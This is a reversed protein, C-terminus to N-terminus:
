RELAAIQDKVFLKRRKLESLHTDDPAPRAYEQEIEQELRRHEAKLAELREGDM